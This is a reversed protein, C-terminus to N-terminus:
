LALGRDDQPTRRRDPKPRCTVRNRGFAIEYIQAPTRGAAVHHEFFACPITSFLLVPDTGRQIFYKLAPKIDIVSVGM